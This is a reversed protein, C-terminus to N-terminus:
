LKIQFANFIVWVFYIFFLIMITITFYMQGWMMTNMNNMLSTMHTTNMAGNQEVKIINTTAAPVLLLLLLSGFFCIYGISTFFINFGSSGYEGSEADEIKKNGFFIAIVLYIMATGIIGFIITTDYAM